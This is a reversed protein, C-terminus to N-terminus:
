NNFINFLFYYFYKIYQNSNKFIDREEKDHILSSKKLQYFLLIPIGIVFVLFLPLIM